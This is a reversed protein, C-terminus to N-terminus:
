YMLQPEFPAIDTSGAEVAPMMYLGLIEAAIGAVVPVLKLNRLWKPDGSKQAAKLRTNLDCLRDLGAQFKPNEVDLVAPFLRAATKNTEIIVHMDYQKTNLGISEYFTTRSVDNLYMTVYVTLCFFRSWLKARWDKLDQPTSKLVAALFDGHRNEDQCWAEFKGFIPYLVRDPHDKLFRYITIYRWYGIKESLYTAYLIYKPKFFTYKRNKTLFGLDLSLDFDTLAKNLFGAHRAEDRSMLTFIEAIVPNTKKLRRGLEKFLLFGSFEATCSRELFEVFFKRTAGQLKEAASRFEAGRVFHRQNYDAAMEQLMAVFEEQKLHPNLEENFLREMEDFNTTYFRPTLLTEDIHGKAGKRPQPAAGDATASMVTVDDRRSLPLSFAACFSSGSSHLRNAHPPTCQRGARPRLRVGQCFAAPALAGASTLSLLSCSTAM